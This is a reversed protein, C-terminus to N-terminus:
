IKEWFGMNPPKTMETGQHDVTCRFSSLSYGYRSRPDKLWMCCEQGASFFIPRWERTTSEQTPM